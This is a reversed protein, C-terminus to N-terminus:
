PSNNLDSFTPSPYPHSVMKLRVLNQEYRKKPVLQIDSIDM